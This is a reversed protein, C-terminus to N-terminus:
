IRRRRRARRRMAEAFRIAAAVARYHEPAIEQGLPVAAHLLRATPPDRHLPVGAAAARERIRAAIEDVGKAVCVPARRAGRDWRLAVAVHTPNVIVVDAKPVEALMRNGAVEMARQRRQARLHPDGEAEKMEDTMEKRSMRHRRLHEARQWLLDVGGIALSVLFVLMLFATLHGMMLRAAPGPSLGTAAILGPTEAALYLGLVCALICLKAFSKAFEILARRGFRNAFGALPSIRNLKPLLKAPAAVVARQALYATLAAVGPLLFLPAVALAVAGIFGGAAQGLTMRDAQGLLVMGASGAGSVVAGGAVAVAILLGGYGAAAALDASRPVEGKARADQLRKETPAHQKDAGDESM